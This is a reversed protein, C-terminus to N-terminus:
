KINPTKHRTKVIMKHNRQSLIYYLSALACGCVNSRQGYTVRHNCNVDSKSVTNDTTSMTTWQRRISSRCAASRRLRVRFSVNSSRRSSSLSCKISNERFTLVRRGSASNDADRFSVDRHYAIFPLSRRWSRKRPILMKGNRVRKCLVRWHCTPYRSCMRESYSSNGGTFNGWVPMMMSWLRSKFPVMCVGIVGRNWNGDGKRKCITKQGETKTINPSVSAANTTKIRRMFKSLNYKVKQVAKMLLHCKSLICRKSKRGSSLAMQEALSSKALDDLRTQQATSFSAWSAWFAGTWKTTTTLPSRASSM